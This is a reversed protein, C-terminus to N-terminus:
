IKRISDNRLTCYECDKEHCAFSEYTGKEFSAILADIEGRLKEINVPLVEFAESRFPDSEIFEIVGEKMSPKMRLGGTAINGVFDLLMKYFVIQRFIDGNSNKTKGEIENRSKMKGTKYDIVRVPISGFSPKGLGFGLKPDLIEVKDLKGNLAIPFGADVDILSYELLYKKHWGNPHSKFYTELAIRGKQLLEEHTREDLRENKLHYEFRELMYKEGTAEKAYMSFFDRLAAHAATGFQEWKSKTKPIRLMNVYIFKWACDYFNNVATVSLGRERLLSWLLEKESSDTETNKETEFTPIDGKYLYGSIYSLHGNDLMELFRSALVERGSFSVKPYSICLSDKARTCAVYLLRMEDEEINTEKKNKLMSFLGEPLPLPDRISRNGWHGDYAHIIYVHKFERGKARHATMCRVGQPHSDDEKPKLQIGHKKAREIFAILDACKAEPNKREMEKAVDFLARVNRLERYSNIISALFGTRQLILELTRTINNNADEISLEQLLRVAPNNSAFVSRNEAKQLELMWRYLEHPKLNFCKTHLAEVVAREDGSKAVANIIKLLNRINPDTFINQEAEFTHLVDYTDMAIKLLQADKNDRYLVAIDSPNDGANIKHRIDQVVYSLEAEPTKCECVRVRASVLDTIGVLNGSRPSIKEGLKQVADLVRQKSRFSEILAIGVASPFKKKFYLFNEM